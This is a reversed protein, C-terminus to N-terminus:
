HTAETREAMAWNRDHKQQLLRKCRKEAAVTVVDIAHEVVAYNRHSKEAATCNRHTADKENIELGHGCLTSKRRKQFGYGCGKSLYKTPVKGVLSAYWQEVPQETPKESHKVDHPRIFFLPALSLM